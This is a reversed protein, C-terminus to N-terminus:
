QAPLAKKAKRIARQVMNRGVKVSNAAELLQDLDVEAPDGVIFVGVMGTTIHPNCKYVYAGAVPLTVTFGEAGLSSRWPEAGEPILGEITETDHGTMNTFMVSDGPAAFLVLPQWQTVVGKVVHTQPEDSAPAESPPEPVAGAPELPLSEANPLGPPTESAAPAAVPAQPSSPAPSPTPAVAESMERASTAEETSEPADSCACLMLALLVPISKPKIM